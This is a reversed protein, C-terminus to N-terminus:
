LFMKKIRVVPGPCIAKHCNLCANVMGTYYTEAEDPQAEKLAKVAQVYSLAFGNFEDSAAKKPETAKANHIKEFAVAVDPKEGRQILAKMRMGDDFMSRMLLALESDGNPNLPRSASADTTCSLTYVAAALTLSVLLLKM